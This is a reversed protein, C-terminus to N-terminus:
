YKDYMEQAKKNRDYIKEIQAPTLKRKGQNIEGTHFFPVDRLLSEKFGKEEEMAKLLSFDTQRIAATIDEDSFALGMFAIMAKFALHPNLKLDEYRVLHVPLTKQQNWSNFHEEWTGIVRPFLNNMLIRSGSRCLYREIVEDVSIGLYRSFSIAIDLPNRVIYIAATPFQTHFVPLGDHVSYSFQDHIKQLYPAKRTQVYFNLFKRRLAELELDNYTSIDKPVLKQFLAKDAYLENYDLNNINFDEKKLLATFFSRVWTNGSKPYSALWILKYKSM